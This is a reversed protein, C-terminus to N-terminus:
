KVDISLVTTLLLPLCGLPELAKVAGFWFTGSLLFRFYCPMLILFLFCYFTLWNLM